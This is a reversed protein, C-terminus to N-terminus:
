IPTSSTGGTYPILIVPPQSAYQNVASTSSYASGYPGYPNDISTSSYRSGYAGYANVISDSAFCASSVLGLYTSADYSYLIAVGDLPDVVPDSITTPTPSPTPTATVTPTLTATPTFTPTGVATETPM